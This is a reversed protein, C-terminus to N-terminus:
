GPIVAENKQVKKILRRIKRDAIVQLEPFYVMMESSMVSIDAIEELLKERSIRKRRYHNLAVIFEGCEEALMDLQSDLGWKDLAYKCLDYFDMKPKM